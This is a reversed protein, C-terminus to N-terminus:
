VKRSIVWLFPSFYRNPLNEIRFTRLAKRTGRSLLDLATPLQYFPRWTIWYGFYLLHSRKMLYERLLSPNQLIFPRHTIFDRPHYRKMFLRHIGTLNPVSIVLYGGSKLWQLHLDLADQWPDCHEIFGASFVVDFLHPFQARFVDDDRITASVQNLACTARALDVADSYDIGSVQYGYEKHFYVMWNGPVCGIELFQFSMEKPLYAKL